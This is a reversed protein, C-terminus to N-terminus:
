EIYCCSNLYEYHFYIIKCPINNVIVPWITLVQFNETINQLLILYSLKIELVLSM